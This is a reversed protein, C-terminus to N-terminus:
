FFQLTFLRSAIIHVYRVHEKEGLNHDGGPEAGPGVHNCTMRFSMLIQETYGWYEANLGRFYINGQRPLNDGVFILYRNIM